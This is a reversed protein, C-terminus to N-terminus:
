EKLYETGNSTVLTNNDKIILEEKFKDLKIQEEEAFANNYTILLKNDEITYTGKYIVMEEQFEVTGDKFTYVTYSTGYGETEIAYNKDTFTGNIRINSTNNDKGISTTNNTENNKISSKNNENKMIHITTDGYTFIGLNDSSNMICNAAKNIMYDVSYRKFAVVSSGDKEVINKNKGTRPDISHAFYYDAKYGNVNEFKKNSLVVIIFNEVKNGKYVVGIQNSITWEKQMEAIGRKLVNENISITREVNSSNMVTYTTKDSNFVNIWVVVAIIVIIISIYKMLKNNSLIKVIINDTIVSNKFKEKEVKYKIKKDVATGCKPCFKDIETLQNGCKSCYM